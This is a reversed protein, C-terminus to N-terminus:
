STTQNYLWELYPAAACRPEFVILAPVSYPHKAALAELAQAQLEKRTKVLMAAESGNEIANQWRYISIMGPFINVCAALKEAVLEGGVKQADKETPFTTYIVIMEAHQDM